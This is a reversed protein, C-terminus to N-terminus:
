FLARLRLMDLMSAEIRLRGSAWADVLPLSGGTIALLDDSSVTLRVQAGPRSEESVDRLEGDVIRGSYTTRLDPFHCSVTRDVGHRRKLSHPVGDLREALEVMAAECAAKTAM